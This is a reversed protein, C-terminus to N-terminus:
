LVGFRDDDSFLGNDEVFHNLAELGARNEEVWRERQRTKVAVELARNLTVSLNLELAKAQELLDASLYVNTNRKKEIGHSRM